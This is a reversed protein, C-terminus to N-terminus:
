GRVLLNRSTDVRREDHRRFGTSPCNTSEPRFSQPIVSPSLPCKNQSAPSLRTSHPDPTGTDTAPFVKATTGQPQERLIRRLWSDQNFIIERFEERSM